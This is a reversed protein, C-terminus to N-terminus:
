GPDRQPALATGEVTLRKRAVAEVIEQRRAEPLAALEEQIKERVWGTFTLGREKIHRELFERDDQTVRFTLRNTDKRVM